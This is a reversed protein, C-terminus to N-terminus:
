GVVPPVKFLNGISEPANQMAAEASEWPEVKDERWFAKMDTPTVLPEIGDTKVKSVHEFAALVSSLQTALKKTEEASLSLRALHANEIVSLEVAKLKQQAELGAIVKEVDGFTDVLKAASKMGVKPVGPVNDSSDGALALVDAVLEPPVGFKEIVGARDYTVDKMPDYMCVHDGVLQMLDKDASVVVVEYGKAVGQHVLTAIIDDAEYRKHALLPIEMAEVLEHILPFQPALDEPKEERTAKYESYIEHRFNETDTDFAIGLLHPQKERLLKILMRAFSRDDRAHPYWVGYLGSFRATTLPENVPTYWELWPFREAL